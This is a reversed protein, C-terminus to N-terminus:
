PLDKELDVKKRKKSKGKEMRDRPVAEYESRQEATSVQIEQEDQNM